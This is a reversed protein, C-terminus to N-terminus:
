CAIFIFPSLKEKLQQLRPNEVAVLTHNNLIPILPGHDTVHESTQLGKLYYACKFMAREITTYHTETDTLFRSGCQVLWLHGGGHDQLLAYSISYLRSVDMQLITPLQLNFMALVPSSALAKKVWHFATDHDMTWTFARRPNMLNVLEM